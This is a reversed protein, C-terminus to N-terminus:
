VPPTKSLDSQRQTHVTDMGSGNGCMVLCIVCDSITQHRQVYPNHVEKDRESKEDWTTQPTLNLDVLGPWKVRHMEVPMCGFTEHEEVRSPNIRLNQLDDKRNDRQVVRPLSGSQKLPFDGAWVTWM